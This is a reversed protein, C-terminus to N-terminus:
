PRDRPSEIPVRWGGHRTDNSAQDPFLLRVSGGKEYLGALVEEAGLAKGYACIMKYCYEVHESPVRFGIMKQEMLNNYHTAWRIMQIADLNTANPNGHRRCEWVFQELTTM